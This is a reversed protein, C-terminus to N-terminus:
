KEGIVVHWTKIKSEKYFLQLKFHFTTMCMALLSQHFMSHYMFLLLSSKYESFWGGLWLDEYNRGHKQKNNKGQYFFFFVNNFQFNYPFIPQDLSKHCYYFLLSM